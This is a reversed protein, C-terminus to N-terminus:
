TTVEGFMAVWDTKSVTNTKELNAQTIFLRFIETVFLLSVDKKEGGMYTSELLQTDVTIRHQTKM